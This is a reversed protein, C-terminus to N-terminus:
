EIVKNWEVEYKKEINSIHLKEIEFKLTSLIFLFVILCVFIIIGLIVFVLIM